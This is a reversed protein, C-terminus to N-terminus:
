SKSSFSKTFKDKTVKARTLLLAQTQGITPLHQTGGNSKLCNPNTKHSLTEVGAVYCLLVKFEQNQPVSIVSM